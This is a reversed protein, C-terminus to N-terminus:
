FPRHRHMSHHKEHVTNFKEVLENSANGTKTISSLYSVLLVDNYEQLLAEQSEETKCVHLRNCLSQVQRLLAQNKPIAGSKVGQLYACIAEIGESLKGIAGHVGGLHATLQMAASGGDPIVRAIHDIGVKEADTSAVKLEMQQSECTASFPLSDSDALPNLVLSVTKPNGTHSVIAQHNGPNASEPASYWGVVEYERFVNQYHAQKRILYEMDLLGNSDIVCEFSNFLETQSGDPSQKGIVCGMVRCQQKASEDTISATTRSYHDSINLVALPHLLCTSSAM